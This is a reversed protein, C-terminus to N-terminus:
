ISKYANLTGQIDDNLKNYIQTIEQGSLVLNAGACCFEIPVYNLQMVRQFDARILMTTVGVKRCNVTYLGNSKTIKMVTGGLSIVKFGNQNLNFDIKNFLQKSFSAWKSRSFYNQLRDRELDFENSIQDVISNLDTTSYDRELNAINKRFFTVPMRGATLGMYPSINNSVERHHYIDNKVLVGNYRKAQTLLCLVSIM